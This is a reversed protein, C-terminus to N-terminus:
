FVRLPNHESTKVYETNEATHSKVIMIV